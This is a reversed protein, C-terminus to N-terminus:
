RRELELELEFELFGVGNGSTGGIDDRDGVFGFGFGFDIGARTPPPSRREDSNDGDGSGDGNGDIGRRRQGGGCGCREDDGSGSCVALLGAVLFSWPRPQTVLFHWANGQVPALKATTKQKQHGNPRRATQQECDNSAQACCIASICRAARTISSIALTAM